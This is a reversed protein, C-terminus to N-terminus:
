YNAVILQYSSNLSYIADLCLYLHYGVDISGEGRERRSIKGEMGCWNEVASGQGKILDVEVAETAKSM